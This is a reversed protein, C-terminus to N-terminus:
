ESQKQNVNVISINPVLEQIKVQRSKTLHAGIESENKEFTEQSMDSLEFKALRNLPSNDENTV